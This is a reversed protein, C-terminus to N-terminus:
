EPADAKTPLPEVAIGESCQIRLQTLPMGVPAAVTKPIKRGRRKRIVKKKFDKVYLTVKEGAPVLDREVRYGGDIEFIVQQWHSRSENTIIFYRGVVIDGELVLINAGIQNKANSTPPAILITAAVVVGYAVLVLTKLQFFVSRARFSLWKELV